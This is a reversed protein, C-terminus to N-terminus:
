RWIRISRNEYIIIKQKPTLKNLTNGMENKLENNICINEVSNANSVINFLDATQIKNESLQILRKGQYRIIGQKIWNYAYNSFKYGKSKDFKKAYTINDFFIM